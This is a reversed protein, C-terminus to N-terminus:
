RWDNMARVIQEVEETPLDGWFNELANDLQAARQTIEQPTREITQPQLVEIHHKVAEREQPSLREVAALIENLTLMDAEEAALIKARGTM